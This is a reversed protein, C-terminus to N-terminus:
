GVLLGAKEGRFWSATSLEGGKSNDGTFIGREGNFRSIIKGLPNEIRNNSYSGWGLGLTIDLNRYRKSMALYEASFLGTGAIDRLGIATAPLFRSENLIRIKIDFGKDKFTQNGSFAFVPSYLRDRIDTYQYIAEFWEFPYAIVALRQYPEHSSFNMSIVGSEHFRANPMSVLGTTGWM